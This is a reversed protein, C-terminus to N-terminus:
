RCFTVSYKVQLQCLIRYKGCYRSYLDSNERTYTLFIEGLFAFKSM